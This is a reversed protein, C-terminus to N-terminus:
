QSVSRYHECVGRVAAATKGRAERLGKGDARRPVRESDAFVCEGDELFRLFAWTEYLVFGSFRGDALVSKFEDLVGPNNSVYRNVTVPVGREGCAAVMERAVADDGIARDFPTVFARLMGEDLLGERVWARWDFEINAPYALNRSGPRDHAPRFWDVNLNVRMKKGRAAIMARAGRLFDTYANGRVRAVDALLDASDAPVRDLVADNFGYDQPTDTHTSHNEVRFEVGDVGADLIEQLCTLWFRQVRPETECLAGPLYANRGRTYAICGCVKKSGSGDSPAPGESPVDLAIVEPGRGTDFVLGGERYGEWEPFWITTGTAFVGPIERGREDLATLLRDRANEFDAPGERFDTKILIYRDRLNLGALTLVRVPDGEATVLNGYVDRVERPSPEVMEDLDFEVDKPRYRYNLDSTWIQLHDKTVRTPSDDKKTLRITRVAADEIGPPLDDTRRRIRLHPNRLVFPDMWTLYGGLCSLRGYQRGQPSGEAFFMAIGTEYPKFYGYIELGHRHAADAAVHLPDGLVDQTQSYAKWQSQDFGVTPDETIGAIGSPMLYGGHGDGYYGWIVRRVGAEALLQMIADVHQPTVAHPFSLADDPFDVLTELRFQSHKV